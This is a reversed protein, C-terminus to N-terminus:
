RLCSEDYCVFVLGGSAFYAVVTTCCRVPDLLVEWDGADEIIKIHGGGSEGGMGGGMMGSLADLGGMGEMGEGGFGGMGGFGGGGGMGEEDYGDDAYDYEDEGGEFDDQGRACSHFVLGGCFAVATREAM